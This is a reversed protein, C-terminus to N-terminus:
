KAESELESEEEAMMREAIEEPFLQLFTKYHDETYYYLGDQISFILRYANRPGGEYWCDAEQWSSKPLLGEYNGFYDGGISMGPAVDSVYNRRSDWGLARAEAKTLFNEPLEEYLYLYLVIEEPDILTDALSLVPMVLLLAALLLAIIRKKM